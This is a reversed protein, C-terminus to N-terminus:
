KARSRTVPSRRCDACQGYLTLEHREVMFGKPALNKMSGPCGQVQFVRNCVKCQFHHHHDDGTSEFRPNEGPLNVEQILGEAVLSNINRYVTAMGIAMLTNKAGDLIEQPSLPRHAAAIVASIASRQRTTRKM